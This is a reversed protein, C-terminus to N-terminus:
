DCLQIEVDLKRGFSRMQFIADNRIGSVVKKVCYKFCQRSSYIDPHNKVIVQGFDQLRIPQMGSAGGVSSM